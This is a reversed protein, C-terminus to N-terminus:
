ILNVYDYTDNQELLATEVQLIEAKVKSLHELKRDNPIRNLYSPTLYTKLTKLKRELSEGAKLIVKQKEVKKLVIREPTNDYTNTIEWFEDAQLLTNRLEFVKEKAESEQMIPKDNLYSEVYLVLEFHQRNAEKFLEKRREMAEKIEKPATESESPKNEQKLPVFLVKETTKLAKLQEQKQKLERLMVGRSYDSEGLKEIVGIWLASCEYKKMLFVGQEFSKESRFYAEIENM